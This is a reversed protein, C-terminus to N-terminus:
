EEVEHINIFLTYSSSTRLIQCIRCTESAVTSSGQKLIREASIMIEQQIKQDIIEINGRRKSLYQCIASPTLGLKEAAERQSLGFHNILSEALEKRITPIGNWM